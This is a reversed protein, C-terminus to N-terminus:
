KGGRAAIIPLVMSIALIVLYPLIAAQPCAQLLVDVLVLCILAACLLGFYAIGAFLNIM